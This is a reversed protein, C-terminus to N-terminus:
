GRPYSKYSDWGSEQKMKRLTEDVKLRGWETYNRWTTQGGISITKIYKIGHNAALRGAVLDAFMEEEQPNLTSKTFTVVMATAATAELPPYFTLTAAGATDATVNTTVIYNQRHRQIFFETGSEITAASAVSIINMTTAAKVGATTGSVAGAWDTMQALIHPRKVRVWVDVNPLNTVYATNANSDQINRVDLQVVGEHCVDWSLKEGLPYEISKIDTIQPLIGGIYIQKNNMCKKNYIEYADNANMIDDSISCVDASDRATIVAWTNQTINHVVKEDTGDAAVFQSKVTDTLKDATGTVDIGYRSEIKFPLMVIHPKHTSFEKLSEKIQYNVLQSTFEAQATDALKAGILLSMDAYSRVM